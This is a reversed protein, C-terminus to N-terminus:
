RCVGAIEEEQRPKVPEAPGVLWERGVTQVSLLMQLLLQLHHAKSVALSSFRYCYASSAHDLLSCCSVVPM